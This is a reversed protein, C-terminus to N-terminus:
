LQKLLTKLKEHQEKSNTIVIRNMSRVLTCKSGPPFKVGVQELFAKMDGKYSEDIIGILKANALYFKTDLQGVGGKNGIVVAFAEVKYSLKAQLCIYKIIEAVPISDADLNIKVKSAAADKLLVINIGKKDVDQDRSMKTIFSIADAVSHNEFKVKPIIIKLKSEIASEAIANSLFGAFILLFALSLNLRKM